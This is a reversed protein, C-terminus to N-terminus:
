SGGFEHLRYLSSVRRTWYNPDIPVEIVGRTEAAHSHIMMPRGQDDTGTYVSVHRPMGEKEIWFSMIDGVNMQREVPHLRNYPLRPAFKACWKDFDKDTPHHSYGGIRNAGRAIGLDLAACVLLGICDVGLKGRGRGQHRFRTGSYSRLAAIWEDVTIDTM